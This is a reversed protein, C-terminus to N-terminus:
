IRDQVVIKGHQDYLQYCINGDIDTGIKIGVKGDPFDAVNVTVNGSLCCKQIDRSNGQYIGIDANGNSVAFSLYKMESYQNYQSNKPLIEEFRTGAKVGIAYSIKQIVNLSLERPNLKMGCFIGAGEGVLEEPKGTQLPQKGFYENLKNQIIPINSSGGVLVVEDINNPSLGDVEYIAEDLCDEIKSVFGNDLIEELMERSIECDLDHQDYAEPEYVEDEDEDSLLEKTDKAIKLINNQYKPNRDELQIKLVNDIFHNKLLEDVDNGGLNKNGSTNLVEIKFGAQERQFEFITVDFTGGGLDFILIREKKGVPISKDFLGFSLAAAVPEEILGIVRLGAAEASNKIINRERSQYSYPVSIVVGDIYEGAYKKTLEDGICKFIDRSIDKASMSKKLNPIYTTWADEGIRRKIAYVGNDPDNRYREYAEAGIIPKGNTQYYIVNPFNNKASGYGNMGTVPITKQNASDWKTIYNTSTGFDIGFYLSM